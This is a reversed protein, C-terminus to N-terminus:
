LRHGSALSAKLDPYTTANEVLHCAVLNPKEATGVNKLEPDKVRCLDVAFPCRPHFHCGSPPKVPSPVDGTLVIRNRKKGKEPDPRSVMLAQTYPHKPAAYLEHRDSLEVIRGLYMVAVRDAMHKVVALDHGVFLYAVGLEKKLDQMLNLIQAQVSVDLASVPEDAVIFKPHVALARAIAVRQRQGGSFEHPYRNLAWSGLGVRELLEAVRDRRQGRDGMKHVILPQEVISLINKRPNLSSFPDQFIMQIDRRISKLKPIPMNGIDMGNFRINGSTPRHLRIITRGLTSKGCGSEGVLGLTEHSKLEFSVGDVAHVTGTRRLFLGSHIPFHKKVNEVKLM